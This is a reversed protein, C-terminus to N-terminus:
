SNIKNLVQLNQWAQIFNGQMLQSVGTLIKFEPQNPNLELAPKLAQEALKAQLNYLYVFGLYAHANPNKSDLQTVIKLAAIAGEADQQLVNALALNYAFDLRNPEQKLRYELAKEAQITYDQTPDYQNIRGVQAFIPDLGKIGAPLNVILLRLQTVLDLEPAVMPAAKPDIKLTVDPTNINYSEGTERNLYTAELQYNGPILDVPPFMAMRETVQYSQDPADGYLQGTGIGHDHIWSSLGKPNPNTLKWNLIVIGQQLDRLSGRWQYSVPVPLGPPAQTPILVRELEIKPISEKIPLVEVFPIIREYLNLFSNDPLLWQKNLKFEPSIELTQMTMEQADQVRDVSGQQGTKTVFWSMSRVDQLVHNKNTGVQRGHVQSGKLSGYYNLNHQNIEPTSPLVGLNSKLYPQSAIMASIVQEHPWPNGLYVHHENGPNLTRIVQRVPYSGIPWLNFMMLIIGLGLTGWRIQRGWSQPFLTLFYALVIALVPLLPLTYRFDKNINLSSILYGGWWFIGLWKLSIWNLQLKSFHDFPHHQQDWSLSYHKIIYFLLGIIPIILLPFSVHAPLLKFYYTWADLTNLAPDGEAIASDLTARKGSTLMLLWNTRAWPFIIAISLLLAAFLQLFRNWQRHKLVGITVWLLPTFLFFLATQKTLLALGFTLGFLIAWRWSHTLKKDSNSLGSFWWLTLSYFSLTVMATLPYDLLFQLRHQYLGPLIACLATAWFGVSRNFLLTGLGYVSAFLIASFLLHVGNTQDPGIGLLNQFPITLLYTLPPIKPSMMWMQTWWDGSFWQPHQWVQWYNLAENLYDAQDWAPVSRDMRFWLRDSVAVVLWILGVGILEAPPRNHKM